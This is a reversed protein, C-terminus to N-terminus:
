KKPPTLYDHKVLINLDQEAIQAEIALAYDIDASRWAERTHKDQRSGYLIAIQAIATCFGQIWGREKATM